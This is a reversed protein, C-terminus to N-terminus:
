GAILYGALFGLFFGRVVAFAAQGTWRRGGGSVETSPWGVM